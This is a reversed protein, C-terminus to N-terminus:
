SKKKLLFWTIDDQPFNNDRHYVFGYDVLELDNYKELMEGAFDRKFLKNSHGRYGITVPSPNYYEAILIYKNSTEYLKEYVTQLFDPNIHILVGKIFVFDRKRDPEFNLISEHYIKNIFDHKELEAVANKNIEIASIDISNFLKSIAHLNLGINSGFEIVSKVDDCKKFISSFLPINNKILDKNNRAIYENGWEESAWFEEQETKYKM